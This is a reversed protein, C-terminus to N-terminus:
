ISIKKDKYLSSRMKKSLRKDIETIESDRYKRFDEIMVSQNFMKKFFELYKERDEKDLLNLAKNLAQDNIFFSFDSGFNISDDWVNKFFIMTDEFNEFETEKNKDIEKLIVDGKLNELLYMKLFEEVPIYAKVSEFPIEGTELFKNFRKQDIQGNRDIFQFWTSFDNRHNNDDTIKKFGLRSAIPTNLLWSQGIIAAIEPKEKVILEAIKSFDRKVLDQGLNKENTSFFNDFHVELFKDFKSFGLDVLIKYNKNSANEVSDLENFTVIKTERKESDKKHEKLHGIGLYEVISDRKSIVLNLIKDLDVEGSDAIEDAEEYFGDLFLDLKEKYDDSRFEELNFVPKLIINETPSYYKLAESFKYDTKKRQSGAM